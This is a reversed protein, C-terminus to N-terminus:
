PIKWTGEDVPDAAGAGGWALDDDVGERGMTRRERGVSTNWLAPLRDAEWNPMEPPGGDHSGPPGFPVPKVIERVVVRAKQDPVPLAHLADL